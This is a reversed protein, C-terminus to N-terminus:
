INSKVLEIQKMWNEVVNEIRKLISSDLAAQRLTDPNTMYTLYLNEDIEFKMVYDLDTKTETLHMIYIKQIYDFLYQIITGKIYQYFFKLDSLFEQKRLKAATSLNLAGWDKFVAIAPCFLKSLLWDIAAIPNGLKM